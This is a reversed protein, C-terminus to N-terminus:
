LVFYIVSDRVLTSLVSPGKIHAYMRHDRVLKYVALLTLYIEFCLAVGADAATSSFPPHSVSYARVALIAGLAEERFGYCAGQIYSPASEVALLDPIIGRSTPISMCSGGNLFLFFTILASLVNIAFLAANCWLVRRSKQFM